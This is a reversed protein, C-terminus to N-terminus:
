GFVPPMIPYRSACIVDARSVEAVVQGKWSFVLSIPTVAVSDAQEITQTEGNCCLISFHCVGLDARDIPRVFAVVPKGAEQEFPRAAVPQCASRRNSV